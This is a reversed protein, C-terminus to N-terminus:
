CDLALSMVRRSPVEFFARRGHLFRPSRVSCFMSISVM